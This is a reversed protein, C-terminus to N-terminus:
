KIELCLRLFHKSCLSLSLYLSLSLSLSLHVNQKSEIIEVRGKLRLELEVEEGAELTKRAGGPVKTKQYPHAWM